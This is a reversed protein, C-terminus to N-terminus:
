EGTPPTEKHYIQPILKGSDMGQGSLRYGTESTLLQLAEGEHSLGRALDCDDERELTEGSDREM